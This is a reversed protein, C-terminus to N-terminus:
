RKGEQSRKQMRNRMFGFIGIMTLAWLSMPLMVITGVIVLV